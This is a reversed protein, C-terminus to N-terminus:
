DIQSKLGRLWAGGVYVVKNKKKAVAKHNHLEIYMKTSFGGILTDSIIIINAIM